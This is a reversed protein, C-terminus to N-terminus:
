ERAALPAHELEPEPQLVAPGPRELFDALLEVHGALADALDLRLREALEAVRGPAPLELVVELLKEHTPEGSAPQQGAHQNANDHARDHAHSRNQDRAVTRRAHDPRHDPGRDAHRDGLALWGPPRLGVRGGGHRGDGTAPRRDRLTRRTAHAM